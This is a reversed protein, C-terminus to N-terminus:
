SIEFSIVCDCVYTRYVASLGQLSLATRCLFRSALYKANSLIVIRRIRIIRNNCNMQRKSKYPLLLNSQVKHLAAVVVAALTQFLRRRSRARDGSTLLSLIASM